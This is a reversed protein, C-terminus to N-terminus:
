EEGRRDDTAELKSLREQIYSDAQEQHDKAARFQTGVEAFSKHIGALEELVDGHGRIAAHAALDRRLEDVRTDVGSIRLMIVTTMSFLITAFLAAMGLPQSRESDKSEM